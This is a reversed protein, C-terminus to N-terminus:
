KQEALFAKYLKDQNNWAKELNKRASKKVEEGSSLHTPIGKVDFQSYKDADEGKSFMEIPNIRRQAEKAAAKEAQERLRKEKEAQKQQEANKKHMAEMLLTEKDVLKLVTENARDELRVGLEPLVEDRVRDCEELIPTVKHERAISRVKERFDALVSLYPMITEELNGNVANNGESEVAFGIDGSTPIGFMRLQTTIYVGIDRLLVCNPMKHAKEKEVIYANGVVILDRLKDIATRTDVSDCLATHFEETYANFKKQIELESADLKQYGTSSDPKYNKRLIDKVLQLFDNCIREFHLAREMANSCYDLTDTWTNMLFLIRMQRCSYQRLAERITIFNKLSKSMKLGQIRLTGAHLFYNVWNDSKFHAECQAIENDHHPFKLDSGGSHIDLKDGFVAGCMASCEIHWGPRGKGWPSDWLPEGPKYAKWLAFDNANRKLQMAESGLSLEGEGERMNKALQDDDVDGYAEPVLKAYSHMPNASFAATDFYVSGDATAYAYGNSIIEEVFSVIEPVYESVRTLINPPLVNLRSMDSFFENEYTKALQDFVSHENVTDGKKSDLWDSLVDRSDNLLNGKAREIAENDKSILAKELDSCATNVKHMVKDLMRKKDGDTETDYKVKFHSLAGMVDEVVKTVNIGEKEADLYSTLLHRQRARKIIKDDIDTINMAYVVRYGFYNELVRRLIDFSLYARAHGMHSSDYVTPGCIYWKVVKGNNPQFVEKKRTLSNYLTLQKPPSGNEPVKWLPQERKTPAETSMAFIFSSSARRLLRLPAILSIIPRCLSLGEQSPCVTSLSAFLTVSRPRLVAWLLSIVCLLSHLKYM